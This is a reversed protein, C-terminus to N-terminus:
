EDIESREAPRLPPIATASRKECQGEYTFTNSYSSGLSPGKYVRRSGEHQGTAAIYADTMSFTRGDAKKVLLQFQYRGENIYEIRHIETCRDLCYLMRSPDVRYVHTYPLKEQRGDDHTETRVGTCVLNFAM